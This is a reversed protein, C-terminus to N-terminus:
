WWGKQEAIWKSVVLKGTGGNEYVESDDHIQSKPVWVGDPEGVDVLLAKDTEHLCECRNIVVNKDDYEEIDM